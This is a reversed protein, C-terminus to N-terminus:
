SGCLSMSVKRWCLISSRERLRLFVFKTAAFSKSESSITSNPLLFLSRLIESRITHYFQSYKGSARKERRGVQLM